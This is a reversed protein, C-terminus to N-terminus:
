DMGFSFPLTGVGGLSFMFCCVLVIACSVQYIVKPKFHFVGVMKPIFLTMYLTLPYGIRTVYPHLSAFSYIMTLILLVNSFGMYDVDVNKKSFALIFLMLYIAFMMYAGTSYTGIMKGYYLVSMLVFIQRRFIFVGVIGILTAFFMKKDLKVYYIPYLILCFLASVHFCSAIIIVVCYQLLKRRKIYYYAAFCISMAISQRLGSFTIAFNGFAFYWFISILPMESYRYMTFFIPMQIIAAIIILFGRSDVGLHYLIKNLLVYGSEYNLYHLEFFDAEGIKSYAPIYGVLDTGVTFSRFGQFLVVAICVLTFFSVRQYNKNKIQGTLIYAVIIFILLEGYYLM